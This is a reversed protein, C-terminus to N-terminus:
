SEARLKRHSKELSHAHYDGIQCAIGFADEEATKEIRVVRVLCELSLSEGSSPHQSPMQLICTLSEGVRLRCALHCYFGISSINRTAGEAVVELSNRFFLVNCRLAFRRRKRREETSNMVHWDSSLEVSDRDFM